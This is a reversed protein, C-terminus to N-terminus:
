ELFSPRKSLYADRLRSELSENLVGVVTESLPCGDRRKMARHYALGYVAELMTGSMHVAGTQLGFDHAWDKLHANNLVSALVLTAVHNDYCGMQLLIECSTYRLAADGILALMKVNGLTSNDGLAIAHYGMIHGFADLFRRLVDPYDSEDYVTVDPSMM